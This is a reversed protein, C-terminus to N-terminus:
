FIIVLNRDIDGKKFLKLIWIFNGCHEKFKSPLIPRRCNNCKVVVIDEDMPMAGFIEMDKANLQTTVPSGGGEESLSDDIVVFHILIEVQLGM